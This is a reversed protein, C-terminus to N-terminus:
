AERSRIQSALASNSKGRNAQANFYSRSSGPTCQSREPHRDRRNFLSFRLQKTPKGQDLRSATIDAVDATSTRRNLESNIRGVPLKAEKRFLKEEVLDKTRKWWNDNMIERREQNCM